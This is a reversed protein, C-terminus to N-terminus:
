NSAGGPRPMRGDRVANQVWDWCEPASLPVWLLLSFVLLLTVVLGVTLLDWRRRQSAGAAVFCGCMIGIQSVLFVYLPNATRLTGATGSIVFYLVVLTLVAGPVTIDWSSRGVTKEARAHAVNKGEV